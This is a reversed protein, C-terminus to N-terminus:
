QCNVETGSTVSSTGITAAANACNQTKTVMPYIVKALVTGIVSLGIAVFLAIRLGSTTTESAKEEKLFRRIRDGM